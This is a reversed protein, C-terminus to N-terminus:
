SGHARLGATTLPGARYLDILKQNSVKMGDVTINGTFVGELDFPVKQLALEAVAFVFDLPPCSPFSSIETGLLTAFYIPEHREEDSGSIRFVRRHHDPGNVTMTWASDKDSISVIVEWRDHSRCPVTELATQIDALKSPTFSDAFLVAVPM